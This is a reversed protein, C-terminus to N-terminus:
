MIQRISVTPYLGDICMGARNNFFDKFKPHLYLTDTLCPDIDSWWTRKTNADFRQQIISLGKDGIKYLTCKNYIPHNRVYTIGYMSTYIDPKEYHYRM